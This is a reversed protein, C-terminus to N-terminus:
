PLVLRKVAFAVWEPLWHVATSSVPLWNAVQVPKPCASGTCPDEPGPARAPPSPLPVTGQLPPQMYM